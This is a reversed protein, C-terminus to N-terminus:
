IPSKFLPLPHERSDYTPGDWTLKYQVHIDLISDLQAEYWKLFKDKPMSDIRDLRIVPSPDLKFALSFHQSQARYASDSECYPFADIFPGQRVRHKIKEWHVTDQLVEMLFEKNGNKQPTDFYALRCDRVQMIFYPRMGGQNKKIGNREKTEYYRKFVNYCTDPGLADLMMKAFWAVMMDGVTDVRYRDGCDAQMNYNSHNTKIFVINGGEPALNKSVCTLGILGLIYILLRKM